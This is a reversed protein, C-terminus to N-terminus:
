GGVAGATEVPQDAPLKKKGFVAWALALWAAVASFWSPYRDLPVQGPAGCTIEGALVNFNNGTPTQLATQGDPLVWQSIGSSALRFIPIQYEAARIRTMRANLRHAKEGWSMRDMAPVLLAQAGKRIFEDGVRAYSLDYCIPLGIKGWPSEWVNQERAALGDKFFQIPVSKTQRFIVTGDPGVVYASNEFDAGSPEKGGAVLYRKAAKTFAIIQPPVPDDFAYESLMLVQLEPKKDALLALAALTEPLAADETQIGGIQFTNQPANTALQFPAPATLKVLSQKNTLLAHVELHEDSSPEPNPQGLGALLVFGALTAAGAIWKPKGRLQSLAAGALMIVGSAGYCGLAMAWGICERDAFTSGLSLWAFRLYYLECRFFEWGVWLVPALLVVPWGSWAGRVRWLCLTFLGMFTALILWLILAAPGFINWFFGLQIAYSFLGALLGGYFARRSTPETALECMAWAFGVILGELGWDNNALTFFLVAAAVRLLLMAWSNNCAM